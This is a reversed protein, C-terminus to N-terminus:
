LTWHSSGAGLLGMLMNQLLPPPRRGQGPGANDGGQAGQLLTAFIRYFLFPTMLRAFDYRQRKSKLVLRSRGRRGRRAGGLDELCELDVARAQGAAVVEFRSHCGAEVERDDATTV